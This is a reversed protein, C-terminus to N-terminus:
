RRPSQRASLIAGRSFNTSCSEMPSFTPASIPRADEFQEPSMYNFTGIMNGQPTLRATVAQAFAAIGFDMIKVMGDPLLMINAPKIDRHIIGHEHAYDLGSPSKFGLTSSVCCPSAGQARWLM